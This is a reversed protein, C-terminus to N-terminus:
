SAHEKVTCELKQVRVVRRQQALGATYVLFQM